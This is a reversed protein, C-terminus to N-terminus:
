VDKFCIIHDGLLNTFYPIVTYGYSTIYNVLKNYYEINTLKSHIEFILIPEHLLTNDMSGILDYESGEIDIKVIDPKEHIDTMEDLTTCRVKIFDGNIRLKKLSEVEIDVSKGLIMSGQTNESSFEVTDSHNFLARKIITINSYGKTNITLNEFNKSDPELCYVHKAGTKSFLISDLGCCAGCDFIVKDTFNYDPYTDLIM